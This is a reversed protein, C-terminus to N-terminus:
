YQRTGCREGQRVASPGEGVFPHSEECAGDKSHLDHVSVNAGETGLAMAIDKGIGRGSGTVLANLGALRQEPM